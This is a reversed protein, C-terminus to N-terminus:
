QELFIEEGNSVVLIRGEQDNRLIPIKLRKLRELVRLHPHGFENDLGAQVIALVPSVAKLFEEISSSSSGHHGLKLVDSVLHIQNNTIPTQENITSNNLKKNTTPYQNNSIKILHEEVEEEADGMFLFSTEGYVLRNVISTNNLEKVKKNLFSEDPYLFELKVDEGFDIEFPQDVIKLNLEQKKIEDLWALYDPATHLVGTYYIQKVDFRRLVEVLGTAHDSHPHSLIMVDIERDWFPMVEGLQSLVNKNPGGDILIDQESPTRIYISDGQGVDLFHVQMEQNQVSPDRGNRVDVATDAGGGRPVDFYALGLLILFLIFLSGIIKNFTTNM